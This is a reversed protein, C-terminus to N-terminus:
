IYYVPEKRFKELFQKTRDKKPNRFFEAATNEEVIVGDAMFIIRDAVERAFDLEHTVIITTVREKAVTKIVQLVEGVLEPDLASTPEDFLIVKPNIALARAIAVRQQQGGSLGSPYHNGRDSLGVKNLLTRSLEFAEKKPMKKVTILAEAINESATKNAFLNYNQFVMGTNEHVKHICSRTLSDAKVHIEELIIEGGSPKELLNICRLLTSKGSGSPGILAVTEGKEVNFSIDKLVHNKKYYKNLKKIEIM